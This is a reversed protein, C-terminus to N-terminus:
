RRHERSQSNTVVRRYDFLALKLHLNHERKGRQSQLMAAIRPTNLGLAPNDATELRISEASHASRLEARNMPPPSPLRSPSPVQSALKCDGKEAIAIDEHTMM